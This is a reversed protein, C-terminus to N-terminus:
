KKDHKDKSDKQHSQKRDKDDDEDGSLFKFFRSQEGDRTKDQYLFALHKEDFKKFFEDWSIRELSDRGSYGEFDIRLIGPDKEDGTRKVTAPYGEREEVWKKIEDHNTTRRSEGAM